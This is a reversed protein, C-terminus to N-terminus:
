TSIVLRAGFFIVKSRFRHMWGCSSLSSRRVSLAMASSMRCLNFSPFCCSKRMATFAPARALWFDLKSESSSQVSVKTNIMIRLWNKPRLINYLSQFNFQYLSKKKYRIGTLFKRGLPQSWHPKMPSVATCFALQFCM